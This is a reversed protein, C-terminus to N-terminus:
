VRFEITWAAIAWPLTMALGGVIAFASQRRSNLDLATSALLCVLTNAALVPILAGFSISLQHNHPLMSLLGWWAAFGGVLAILLCAARRNQNGDGLERAAIWLCVAPLLVCLAMWYHSYGYGDV